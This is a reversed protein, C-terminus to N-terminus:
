MGNIIRPRIVLLTALLYGTSHPSVLQSRRLSLNYVLTGGGDGADGGRAEFSKWLKSGRQYPNKRKKKKKKKGGGPNSGAGEGSELEM